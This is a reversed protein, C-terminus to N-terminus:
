CFGWSRMCGRPPSTASRPAWRSWSVARSILGDWPLWAVRLPRDLRVTAAATLGEGDETVFVADAAAGRASNAAWEQYVARAHEPLVLPDDHFRGMAFSVRALEGLADAEEPLIRRASDPDCLQPERAFTLLGDVTHFGSSELAQVTRLDTAPVRAVVYDRDTRSQWDALLRVLNPGGWALTIRGCRRHLRQSDWNEDSWALVAVPEQDVEALHQGPGLLGALRHAQIQVASESSLRPHGRLDGYPYRRAFSEAESRSLERAM